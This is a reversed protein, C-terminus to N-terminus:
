DGDGDLDIKEIQPLVIGDVYNLFPSVIDDIKNESLVASEVIWDKTALYAAKALTEVADEALALGNEKAKAVIKEGLAKLEYPKEM